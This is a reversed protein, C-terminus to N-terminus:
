FTVRWLKEEMPQAPNEKVNRGMRPTEGDPRLIETRHNARARLSPSLGQMAHPLERSSSRGHKDCARDAICDIGTKRADRLRVWSRRFGPSTETPRTGDYLGAITARQAVLALVTDLAPTPIKTLRGMEQVVTVLPDIEMPRGRELDQLM